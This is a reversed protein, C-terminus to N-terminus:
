NVMVANEQYYRKGNAQWQLQVKYSGKHLRNKDVTLMGSNVPVTIDQGSDSARYFLVNGSLPVDQMEKPFALTITNAQQSIMVPSSLNLAQTRGDIVQQYKLEEGYYDPTVLDIRTHMSKTVMTLIGAAFLTFVIIIKHGWNM